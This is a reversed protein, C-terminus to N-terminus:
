ASRPPAQAKVARRNVNDLIARRTVRLVGRGSGLRVVDIERRSIMRYVTKRSLHMVAAAQDITLLEDLDTETIPM